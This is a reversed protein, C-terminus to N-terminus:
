WAQSVGPFPLSWILAGGTRANLAYLHNDDSGAYVLWGGMALSMRITGGAANYIWANDARIRRDTRRTM